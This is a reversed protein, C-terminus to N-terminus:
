NEMRQLEVRWFERRAFLEPHSVVAARLAEAPDRGSFNGVSVRACGEIARLRVFYVALASAKQM